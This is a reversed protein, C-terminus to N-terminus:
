FCEEGKWRAIHQEEKLTRVVGESIDKEEGQQFGQSDMTM